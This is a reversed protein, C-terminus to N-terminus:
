PVSVVPTNGPSNEAEISAQVQPPKVTPLFVRFISGCGMNNEVTIVGYHARVIGLAVPLGLGRGTSKTSFFPDFLKDFDKEMLGGGTDAMELCAYIEHGPHFDVPFRIAPPIASGFTLKVTLSLTNSETSRAEWANTMLNTWVQQIQLANANIIPGPTPLHTVLGVSGPMAARLLPLAQLCVQSLDLAEITAQTHGLYTLMLGSIVSAKHASQMAVALCESLGAEGSSVASYMMALELNGMVGMLQNNFHHAVAGAMCGLSESKRLQQNQAELQEKEAEVQKRKTLDAHTGFMMLPSGESTRTILQGRDQIWVWHGAKHKMRCDCAYFPLEGSFHRELLDNSRVLDDPHTREDWTSISVPALEERTYGFLQAWKENIRLEGTQVNWEWTGVNTGQLICGLRQREKRLDDTLADAMRQAHDRTNQLARILAFLLLTSLTGGVLTLWSLAYPTALRRGGAQALCLTWRHQNFDISIQRALRAGSVYAPEDAAQSSYLLAQPVPSAGDYIQVLMQQEQGPDREGLIGQLLDYMRYPSYVWGYLAARRQAVTDKPLGKRYVPVYMLTGPQGQDDTEQVLRVKGSLIASDEDRAREMAARRVPESFMDYGFAQLNRGSFPELYIIATYVERDGSPFVQYTPFGESRIDRLHGALAAPPILLAFGIGQIGPLQQEIKQLENYEQWARRSVVESANFFAAGSQLIRAHAYLRSEVQHQIDKCQADFDAKVRVEVAVRMYVAATVALTLGLGLALWAAVGLAKSTLPAPLRKESM